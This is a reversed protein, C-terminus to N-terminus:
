HMNQLCIVLPTVMQHNHISPHSRPDFKRDQGLLKLFNLDQRLTKCSYGKFSINYFERLAITSETKKNEKKHGTRAKYNKFM